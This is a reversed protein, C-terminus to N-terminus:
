LTGGYYAEIHKLLKLHNTSNLAVRIDSSVVIFVDGGDPNLIANISTVNVLVDRNYTNKLPIFPLVPKPANRLLKSKAEAGTAGIQAKM